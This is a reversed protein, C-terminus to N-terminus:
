LFNEWSRTSLSCGPSERSYSMVDMGDYEGSSMNSYPCAFSRGSSSCTFRPMTMSLFRLTGSYKSIYLPDMGSTTVSPLVMSCTFGMIVPISIIRSRPKKERSLRFIRHSILYTMAADM